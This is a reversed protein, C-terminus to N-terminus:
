DDFEEEEEEEEEIEDEEETAETLLDSLMEFDDENIKIYIDPQGLRKKIEAENDLEISDLPIANDMNRAFADLDVPFFRVQEDAERDYLQDKPTVEYATGTITAVAFFAQSEIAYYLLRDGPRINQAEEGSVVVREQWGPYSLEEVALMSIPKIFFRTDNGTSRRISRAARIPTRAEEEAVINDWIRQQISINLEAMTGDEYQVTMKPPNLELVKYRGIRNSYHGGVEFM